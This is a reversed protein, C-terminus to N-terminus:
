LSFLSRPPQPTRLRLRWAHRVEPVDCKTIKPPAYQHVRRIFGAICSLVHDEIATGEDLAPGAGFFAVDVLLVRTLGDLSPRRLEVVPTSGDCASGCLRRLDTMGEFNQWRRLAIVQFEAFEPMQARDPGPWQFFATAIQDAGDGSIHVNKPSLPTLVHHTLFGAGFALALLVLARATRVFGRMAPTM